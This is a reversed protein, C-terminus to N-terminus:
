ANFVIALIRCQENGPQIRITFMLLKGKLALIM